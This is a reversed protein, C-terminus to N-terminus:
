WEFGVVLALCEQGWEVRGQAVGDLELEYAVQRVVGDPLKWSLRPVACDIGVPNTRYETTLGYPECGWFAALAVFCLLKFTKIM